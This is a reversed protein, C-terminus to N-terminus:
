KPCGWWYQFLFNLSFLRLKACPPRPDRPILMNAVHLKLFIKSLFRTKINILLFLNNFCKANQLLSCWFIHCSLLCLIFFSCLLDAFLSWAPWKFITSLISNLSSLYLSFLSTFSLTYYIRWPVNFQPSVQDDIDQIQNIKCHSPCLTPRRRGNVAMYETGKCYIIM